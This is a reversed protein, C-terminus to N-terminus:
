EVEGENDLFEQIDTFDELIDIESDFLEPLDDVNCDMNLRPKNEAILLLEM